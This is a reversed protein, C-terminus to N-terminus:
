IKYASTSINNTNDLTCNAKSKKRYLKQRNFTFATRSPSKTNKATFHSKSSSYKFEEPSSPPVLGFLLNVVKLDPEQWKAEFKVKLCRSRNWVSPVLWAIKMEEERVCGIDYCEGDMELFTDVEEGWAGLCVLMWGTKATIIYQAGSYNTKGGSNM